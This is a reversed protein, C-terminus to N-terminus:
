GAERAPPSAALIPLMDALGTLRIMRVVLKPPSTLWLPCGARDAHRGMAVLAGLGCADCFELGSLDVAVPLRYRDIISTVYRLARDATAIDLEGSLTVHVEGEGGLRSALAVRPSHSGGAAPIGTLTVV